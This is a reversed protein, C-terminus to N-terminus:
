RMRRIVSANHAAVVAMVGNSAIMMGIAQARHHQRWLREAVVITGATVGTKAAWLAAPRGVIGAALPNAEMAGRKLAAITSSGDYVNLAALSVYLVPLLPGRSPQRDADAGRPAIPATVDPAVTDEAFAPSAAIFVIFLTGLWKRVM